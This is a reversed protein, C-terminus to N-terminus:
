FQKLPMDFVDNLKNKLIFWQNFQLKMMPTKTKLNVKVQTYAEQTKGYLLMILIMLQKIKSQHIYM